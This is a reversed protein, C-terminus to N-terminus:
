VLAPESTPTDSARDIALLESLSDALTRGALARLVANETKDTLKALYEACHHHDPTGPARGTPPGCRGGIASHYIQGLTIQDGPRSLRASVRAAPNITHTAGLELALRRRASGRNLASITSAGCAIAGM